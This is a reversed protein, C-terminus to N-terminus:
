GQAKRRKAGRSAAYRLWAAAGAMAAGIAAFAATPLGTYALQRPTQHSM